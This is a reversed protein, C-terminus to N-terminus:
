VEDQKDTLSDTYTKRYRRIQRETVGCFTVLDSTTIDPFKGLTWKFREYPDPEELLKKKLVDIDYATMAIRMQVVRLEARLKELEKSSQTLENEMTKYARLKQIVRELRRLLTYPRKDKALINANKHLGLDHLLNNYEVSGRITNRHIDM